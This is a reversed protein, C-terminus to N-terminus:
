TSLTSQQFIHPLDNKVLDVDSGLSTNRHLLLRCSRSATMWLHEVSAYKSGM